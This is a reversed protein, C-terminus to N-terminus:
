RAAEEDTFAYHVVEGLDIIEDLGPFEQEAM